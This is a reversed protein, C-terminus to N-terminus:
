SEEILVNSACAFFTPQKGEQQLELELLRSGDGTKGLVRVVRAPGATCLVRQGVESVRGAGNVWGPTEAEGIRLNAASIRRASNM